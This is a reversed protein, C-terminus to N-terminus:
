FNTYKILGRENFNNTFVAVPIDDDATTCSFFLPHGDYIQSHIPYPAGCANCNGRGDLGRGGCYECSISSLESQM